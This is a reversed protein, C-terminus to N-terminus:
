RSWFGKLREEIQKMDRITYIPTWERPLLSRYNQHTFRQDLLAIIGRDNESRILRGAAQLVRNIGPYIYAYEFGQNEFYERLINREFCVQPLGVGVIIVGILSEGILDIGEGFIGGMVACATIEKQTQFMELFSEREEETMKKEQCISEFNPEYLEVVKEMYKYSPFYILYNGKKQRVIHQISRAVESYFYERQHYTTKIHDLIIVCKNQPPFPSILKFKPHSSDGVLIEQFYPLPSLTASFFIASKGRKLRKDLLECPDKCFIKIKADRWVKEFYIVYKEDYLECIKCFTNVDLYVELLKEQINPAKQMLCPEALILFESLLELLDEPLESLFLEQDCEKKKDIFFRNIKNLIKSLKPFKTKTLRKLDLIAKKYLEASYMNRARDILNHAEDILFTYQGPFTFFRRLYVRPDFVYNYDCIICDIYLSLELSYEFPCLQHKRALKEIIPRTFIQEAELEELGNKIRDFFGIAYQCKLPDCPGEFFCIKEKATLTLSKLQLGKESLMSFAKEASTRGITKATLYFIKGVKGTPIAKVAPFIVAMTKGIGTPAEAFLMLNATIIQYVAVALERQGKRYKSFPFELKEISKNRRIRWCVLKELWALYENTMNEFIERLEVFSIRRRFEKCEETDIQFYTLLIEVESLEKELAYIFAYMEVQAWHAPNYNQSIQDLDLETTKIEEIVVPDLDSFIGDMRGAIELSFNEKEIKYEVPVEAQYGDPRSKQVKKHGRTGKVARENSFTHGGLDGSVLVFEVLSRVSIKIDEKEYTM